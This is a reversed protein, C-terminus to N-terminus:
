PNAFVMIVSVYIGAGKLDKLNSTIIQDGLYKEYNPFGQESFTLIIDLGPKLKELKGQNFSLVAGGYDWGFGSFQIPKGNLEVLEDLTTGIRIGEATHWSSSTGTIRIM